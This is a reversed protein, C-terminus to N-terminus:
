LEDKLTRCIRFGFSYVKTEPPCSRRSTCLLEKLRDNYSGGKLIKSEGKKPGLPNLLSSVNFYNKEDLWDYCWERVNGSMDFLGLANPMKRGVPHTQREMNDIEDFLGLVIPRKDIPIELPSKSNNKFWAYQPLHAPNNTGSFEDNNGRSRAAYEWEAETPLNFDFGTEDSLWICFDIADFYSVNIVPRDGRRWGSDFPERAGTEACYHDYQSFTIPTSSLYYDSLAVRHVSRSLSHDEIDGMDFVGGTIGIMKIGLKELKNEAIQRKHILASSLLRKARKHKHPKKLNKMKRSRFKMTCDLCLHTKENQHRICIGDQGCSKCCFRKRLNVQTECITCKFYM